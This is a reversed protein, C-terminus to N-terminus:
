AAAKAVAEATAEATIEALPRRAWRWAAAVASVDLSYTDQGRVTKSVRLAGPAKVLERVTKLPDAHWLGTSAIAEQHESLYAAVQGWVEANARVDRLKLGCLIQKIDRQMCGLADNM